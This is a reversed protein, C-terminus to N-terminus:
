LTLSYYKLFDQVVREHTENEELVVEQICFKNLLKIVEDRTFSDKIKKTIITNDPRTKLYNIDLFYNSDIEHPVHETNYEVMVSNIGGLDCYKKVFSQSFTPLNLSPDTSAIIKKWGSFGFEKVTTKIITSTHTIAKRVKNLGVLYWDGEKIEEDSLLYLHQPQGISLQGEHIQLVDQSGFYEVQGIKNKTKSNLRVIKHEKFM